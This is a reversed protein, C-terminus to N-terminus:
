PMKLLWKLLAKSSNVKRTPNVLTKKDNNFNKIPINTSIEKRAAFVEKTVNLEPDGKKKVINKVTVFKQNASGSNDIFSFQAFAGAGANLLFPTIAVIKDNNWTHSIASVLYNSIQTNNLKESSWGTETIFVPLNKSSLSEALEKEYIFSYTSMYTNVSPPQSFGPNPYSHSAIADVQNFIGPVAKNMQRMFTYENMFQGNITPAANDLGASIIFFDQSKSKFVSAAYSLIQAYESPNPTGEWEDNRNPENFIVVYRNKTPWDLSNLFNSFDLVTSFDPKEWVKTNFYDGNTALRVIPILHYKGSDNMFAQWKELNKDSSQIPITVYGWDGGNSNVLEAAKKLEDPFLIHIGIKNNPKSLPNYVGNVKKATGLFILVLLFLTTAFKLIRPM